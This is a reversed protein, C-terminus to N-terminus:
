LEGLTEMVSMVRRNGLCRQGSPGITALPVRLPEGHERMWDRSRRDVDREHSYRRAQEVFHRNDDMVRAFRTALADCDAGSAEVAAALETVFTVADTMM